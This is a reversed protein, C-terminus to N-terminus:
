HSNFNILYNQTFKYLISFSLFFIYIYTCGNNLKVDPLSAALLLVCRYYYVDRLSLFPGLIHVKGKM